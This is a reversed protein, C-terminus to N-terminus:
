KNRLRKFTAPDMSIAQQHQEILIKLEPSIWSKDTQHQKYSKLAFFKDTAFCLLENFDNLKETCNPLMELFSWDTSSVWRGFSTKSSPTVTRRLVKEARAKKTITSPRTILSNHDSLVIDSLIEPM